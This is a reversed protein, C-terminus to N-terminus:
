HANRTYCCKGRAEDGKWVVGPMGLLIYEGISKASVPPPAVDSDLAEDRAEDRDLAADSAPDYADSPSM